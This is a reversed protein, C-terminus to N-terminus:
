GYAYSNKMKQTNNSKEIFILIKVYQVTLHVSKQEIVSKLKFHIAMQAYGGCKKMVALVYKIQHLCSTFFQHTESIRPM